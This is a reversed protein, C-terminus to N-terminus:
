DTSISDKYDPCRVVIRYDPSMGLELKPVFLIKRNADDHVTGWEIARYAHWLVCRRNMCNTAQDCGRSVITIM